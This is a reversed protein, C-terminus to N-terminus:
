LDLRTFNHFVKKFNYDFFGTGSSCRCGPFRNRCEFNCPCYKTCLNDVTVCRCGNEITCEGRHNCPLYMAHNKVKGNTSAWKVARFTRHNDNKKRFICM